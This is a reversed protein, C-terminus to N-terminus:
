HLAMIDLFTMANFAGKRQSEMRHWASIYVWITFDNKIGDYHSGKQRVILFKIEVMKPTYSKTMM